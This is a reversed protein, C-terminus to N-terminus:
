RVSAAWHAFARADGRFANLDVPGSVGRRRGRHHHQWLVWEGARARPRVFLSRMWFREGTMRALYADHFEETTYVVPRRGYHAAVRDLFVRAEGAVDTLAPRTRCPGTHEMDLAHPLAGETRPVVRIFNDAQEAGSRCLTFFHYAGRPLGVAAAGAWNAAFRPDVYDSGETAKIYVFRVDDAALAPWDIPGQHRSVDVGQALGTAWPCWVGLALASAAGGVLAVVAAVAAVGRRSLGM